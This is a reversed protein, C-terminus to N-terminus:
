PGLFPLNEFFQVVAGEGSEAELSTWMQVNAHRRGTLQGACQLNVGAMEVPLAEVGFFHTDDFDIFRAGQNGKFM